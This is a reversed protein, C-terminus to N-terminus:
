LDIRWHRYNEVPLNYGFLSSFDLKLHSQFVKTIDIKPPEVPHDSKGKINPHFLM